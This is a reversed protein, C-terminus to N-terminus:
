PDAPQLERMIDRKTFLFGNSREPRQRVTVIPVIRGARIAVVAASLSGVMGTEWLRRSRRDRLPFDTCSANRPTGTHWPTLFDLRGPLARPNLPTLVGDFAM